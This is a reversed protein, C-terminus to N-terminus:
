AHRVVGVREGESRADAAVGTRGEAPGARGRSRGGKTDNEPRTEQVRDITDASPFPPSFPAHRAQAFWGVRFM